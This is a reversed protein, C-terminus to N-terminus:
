DFRRRYRHYGPEGGMLSMDVLKPMNKSSDHLFYQGRELDYLFVERKRGEDQLLLFRDDLGTLLDLDFMTWPGSQNLHKERVGGEVLDIELLVNRRELYLKSGDPSLCKSCSDSQELPMEFLSRPEEGDDLVQCYRLTSEGKQTAIVSNTKQSYGVIELGSQEAGVREPFADPQAAFYLRGLHDTFWIAQGDPMVTFSHVDYQHFLARVPGTRKAQFLQGWGQDKCLYAVRENQMLKPAEENGSSDRFTDLDIEFTGKELDIKVDGGAIDSSVTNDVESKQRVTAVVGYKWRGDGLVQHM